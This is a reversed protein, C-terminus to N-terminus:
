EVPPTAKLLVRAQALDDEGVLIERWGWFGQQAIDPSRYGCKIGASRLLACAIEAESESPVTKVVVPPQVSATERAQHPTAPNAPTLDQM